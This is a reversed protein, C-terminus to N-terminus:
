GLVGWPEWFSGWLSGFHDGLSGFHDWFSGLPEVFSAGPTGLCVGHGGLRGLSEYRSDMMRRNRPPAPPIRRPTYFLPKHIGSVLEIIPRCHWLVELPVESLHCVHCFLSSLTDESLLSHHSHVESLLPLRPLFLVASLIRM